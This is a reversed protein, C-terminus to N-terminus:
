PFSITNRSHGATAGTRAVAACCTYLATGPVAPTARFQKSCNQVCEPVTPCNRAIEPMDPQARCHWPM